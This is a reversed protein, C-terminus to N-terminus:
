YDELKLDVLETTEYNAKAVADEVQRRVYDENVTDEYDDFYRVDVTANITVEISKLQPVPLIPNAHM